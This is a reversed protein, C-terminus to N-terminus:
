LHLSTLSGIGHIFLLGGHRNCMMQFSAEIGIPDAMVIDSIEDDLSTSIVGTTGVVVSSTLMLVNVLAFHASSHAAKKLLSQKGGVSTCIWVFQCYM